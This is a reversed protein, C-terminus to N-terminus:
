EAEIGNNNKYAMGYANSMIISSKCLSQEQSLKKQPPPSSCITYLFDSQSDQNHSVYFEEPNGFRIQYSICCKSNSMTYMNIKIM